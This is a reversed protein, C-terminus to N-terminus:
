AYKHMIRACIHIYKPHEFQPASVIGYDHIHLLEVSSLHLHHISASASFSLHLM